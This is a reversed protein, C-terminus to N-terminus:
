NHWIISDFRSSILTGKEGRAIAAVDALAGIAALQGSKSAFACAADVKPGMSGAPFRYRAM